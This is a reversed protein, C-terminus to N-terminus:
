LVRVCHFHLRDGTTNCRQAWMVRAARLSQWASGNEGGCGAGNSCGVIASTLVPGRWTTLAPSSNAKTSVARTVEPLTALMIRVSGIGAPLPRLSMLDVGCDGQTMVSTSALHVKDPGKGRDITSVATPSTGPSNVFVATSVAPPTDADASAFTVTNTSVHPSTVGPPTGKLRQGRPKSYLGLKAPFVGALRTVHQTLPRRLCLLHVM